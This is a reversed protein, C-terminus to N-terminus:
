RVVKWRGFDPNFHFFTFIYRCRAQVVHMGCLRLLQGKTRATPYGMAFCPKSESLTEPCVKPIKQPPPPTTQDCKPGLKLEYLKGLKGLFVQTAHRKTYSAIPPLPAKNCPMMKVCITKFGYLIKFNIYLLCVELKRLVSHFTLTYKVYKTSKKQKPEAM